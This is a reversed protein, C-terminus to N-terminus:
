AGWTANSVWYKADSFAMPRTTKTNSWAQLDDWLLNIQELENPGYPPHTALAGNLANYFGGEGTDTFVAVLVALLPLYTPIFPDDHGFTLLTRPDM